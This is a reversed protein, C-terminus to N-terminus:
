WAFIGPVTEHLPAAGDINRPTLSFIEIDRWPHAWRLSDMQFVIEEGCEPERVIVTDDYYAHTPMATEWMRDFHPNAQCAQRIAAIEAEPVIGLSNEKLIYILRHVISEWNVLVERARPDTMMQVIVNLPRDPTALAPDLWPFMEVARHNAGLVYYEPVRHLFAPGPLHNMLNLEAATVTELQGAAVTLDEGMVMSWVKRRKYRPLELATCWSRIAAVTPVRQGNEYKEFGSSSMFLLAAVQAQTLGLELRQRQMYSGLMKHESGHNEAPVARM